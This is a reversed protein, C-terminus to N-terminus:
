KSGDQKVLFSEVLQEQRPSALAIEVDTTHKQNLSRSKQFWRQMAGRSGTPSTKDKGVPGGPSKQSPLATGAGGHANSSPTKPNSSMESGSGPADNGPQHGFARQWVLFPPLNEWGRKEAESILWMVLGTLAALPISTEWFIKFPLSIIVEGEGAKPWEFMPITL